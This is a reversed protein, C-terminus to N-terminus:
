VQNKRLKGKKKPRNKNEGNEILKQKVKRSAKVQLEKRIKKKKQKKTTNKQFCFTFTESAIQKSDKRWINNNNKKKKHGASNSNLSQNANFTNYSSRM